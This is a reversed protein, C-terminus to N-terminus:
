GPVFALSLRLSLPPGHCILVLRRPVSLGSKEVCDTALRRGQWLRLNRSMGTPGKLSSALSSRNELPSDRSPNVPRNQLERDRSALSAPM